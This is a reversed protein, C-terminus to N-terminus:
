PIDFNSGRPSRVQAVLEAVPLSADLIRDAAEPPTTPAGPGALAEADRALGRLAMRRQREATALQLWVLQVTSGGKVMPDTWERWSAASSSELRLPASIVVRPHVRMAELVADRLAVYRDTRAHALVQAETWTPYALAVERVVRMTAADFDIHPSEWAEAIADGLTSKGSGAPGAIFVLDSM